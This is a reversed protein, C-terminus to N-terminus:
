VGQHLLCVGVRNCLCVCVCLGVSVGQPGDPLCAARLAPFPTHTCTSHIHTHTHTGTTKLAEM